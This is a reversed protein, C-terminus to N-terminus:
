FPLKELDSIIKSTHLDSMIEVCLDLIMKPDKIEDNLIISYEDSMFEKVLDKIYAYAGDTTAKEYGQQKLLNVLGDWDAVGQQFLVGKVKGDLTFDHDIIKAEPEKKEYMAKFEDFKKVLDM